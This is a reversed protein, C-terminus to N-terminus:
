RQLLTIRIQDLLLNITKKEELSPMFSRKRAKSVLNELSKIYKEGESEGRRQDEKELPFETRVQTLLEDKTQGEYKAIFAEKQKQEIDRTALTYIVQRPMCEIRKQLETPVSTYFDYYQLFNYPTQRNGYTASLWASFAGDHYNRLVEQAKKIREGHLIIAQNNIAKVESTIQSITLLDDEIPHGEQCFQQLIAKLEDREQASLNAVRFVGSFSSLDGKSSRQALADMKEEHKTSGKMRKTLLTSLKSM